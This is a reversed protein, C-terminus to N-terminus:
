RPLVCAGRVARLEVPAVYTRLLCSLALDADYGNAGNHRAM